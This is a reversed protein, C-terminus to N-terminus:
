LRAAVSRLAGAADNEVITGHFVVLRKLNPLAAWKLFTEKVAVKDKLFLMRFVPVVKPGGAFGLLRFIFAIKEPPNNQIVDSVLISVRAGGGSRVIISAEGHSTGPVSVLDMTPDATIDELTGEVAARTRMKAESKKPGYVKLGLKEAFAHTDIMHQDHGVVLYKPTGWAKVEALTQEDLPIAHYFLLSGDSRKVICMRRGISTGPVNNEIAWLNDDIKQLASHPLVIWPRKAKEAM